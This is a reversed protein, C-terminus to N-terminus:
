IEKIFLMVWDDTGLDETVLHKLKELSLRGQNEYYLTTLTLGDEGKYKVTVIVDKTVSSLNRSWMRKMKM